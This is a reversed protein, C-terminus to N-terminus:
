STSRVNLLKFKRTLDKPEIRKESGVSDPRNTPFVVVV